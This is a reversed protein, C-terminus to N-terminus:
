LFGSFSIDGTYICQGFYVIKIFIMKSIDQKQIQLIRCTANYLSLVMRHQVKNKDLIFTVIQVANLNSLARIVTEKVSEMYIRIYDEITRVSHREKVINKIEVDTVRENGWDEKYSVDYSVRECIKAGTEIMTRVAYFLRITDLSNCEIKKSCGQKDM